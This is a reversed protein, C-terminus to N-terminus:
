IAAPTSVPYLLAVTTVVKTVVATVLVVDANTSATKTVGAAVVSTKTVAAVTVTPLLDDDSTTATTSTVYRTSTPKHSDTSSTYSQYQSVIFDAAASKYNQVARLHATLNNGTACYPDGSDCFSQMRDAFPDCSDTDPRKVVGNHTSTGANWPM